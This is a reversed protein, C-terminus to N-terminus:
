SLCTLCHWVFFFEAVPRSDAVLCAQRLVDIRSLSLAAARASKLGKLGGRQRFADNQKKFSNM